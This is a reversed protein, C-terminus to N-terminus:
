VYEGANSERLEIDQTSNRDLIIPQLTRAAPIIKTRKRKMIQFAALITLVLAIIYISTYHHVDHSSFTPNPLEEENKILNIREEIYKFNLRSENKIINGNNTMNNQNNTLINNVNASIQISSVLKTQWIESSTIEMNNIKITAGPLLKIIGAGILKTKVIIDQFIIIAEYKQDLIFIFQNDKTLSIWLPTINTKDIQCISPIKNNGTLTSMECHIQSGQSNFIPSIQECLIHNEKLTQCDRFETKHIFHYKEEKLNVAIYEAVPNIFELKNIKQIPIPILKFLDMKDVNMLPISIDVILRNNIIARMLKYLILISGNETDGPIMLNPPIKRKIIEIQEKLQKPSLLALPIKGDHMQTFIDLLNNQTEQYENIMIM